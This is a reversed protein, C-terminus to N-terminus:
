RREKVKARKAAREDTIQSSSVVELAGEGLQRLHSEVKAAEERSNFSAPPTGYLTRHGNYAKYLRRPPRTTRIHWSM